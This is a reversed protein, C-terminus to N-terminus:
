THGDGTRVVVDGARTHVSVRALYEMLPEASRLMHEVVARIRRAKRASLGPPVYVQVHFEDLLVKGNM